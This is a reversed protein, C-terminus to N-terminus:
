QHPNWPNAPQDNNIAWLRRGTPLGGYAWLRWGDSGEVGIQGDHFEVVRWGSGFASKCTM